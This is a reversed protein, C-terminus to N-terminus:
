GKWGHGLNARDKSVERGKKYQNSEKRIGTTDAKMLM